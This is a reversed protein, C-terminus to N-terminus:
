MVLLHYIELKKRLYLNRKTDSLLGKAAAPSFLMVGTLSALLYHLWTVLQVLFNFRILFRKGLVIQEPFINNYFM